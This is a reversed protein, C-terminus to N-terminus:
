HYLIESEVETNLKVVLVVTNLYVLVMEPVVSRLQSSTGRECGALISVPLMQYQLGM